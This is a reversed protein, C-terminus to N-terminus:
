ERPIAQGILDGLALELSEAMVVRDGYAVIVRTLQPLQSDSAELYLPQVYLLSHEIPIVLLNGMKVKSGQQNWLSIQQSIIPSQNIRAEIQQPGFILKDRSFEYAVLQGYVHPDCRAGMWAVLNQKNAPTFPSLLVFEVKRDDSGEPLQLVLYNPPMEQELDERQQLAPRWLDEKNYFVQTDTMHYTSYQESQVRFLDEPYRLHARLGAPLNGLPQFLSPFVRVYTQILLDSSDTIYFKTTGNYADIVVKVANRVYNITEGAPSSTSHSLSAPESYPFHDSITYADIIWYLNGQVIVLYPDRDFRLFPAIRQVRDHIQRHLLLRSQPTFDSSLLIRLERFHWAYLLRQWLRGMPVGGRGTYTGYINVNSGPYDLELARTGVFVDTNTLEGYYIAPNSVGLVSQLNPDTTRPPIDKVLLKPLGELAAESVPSLALGYGHTYFFHRNVWTKARRSVLSFDMERAALMVQQLQQDIIYRDKDVSAFHYYPRIEQLQRYAALLPEDDWVRISRVTALNRLVAARTLTGETPFPTLTVPSLNFGQRTFQINANLYPRERDLESPAVVLAQVLPAYLRGASIVLGYTILLGSSVWFRRWPYGQANAPRPMVLAVLLVGTAFGTLTLTTDVPIRAQVDSYRAGLMLDGRTTVLLKYRDLWFGLASLLTLCGILFQSHRWGSTWVGQNLDDSVSRQGFRLIYGLGVTVLLWTVLSLLSRHVKEWFPLAFLYFSLDHGHVPDVVGSPRAWIWTLVVWWEAAVLSSFGLSITLSLAALGWRPGSWVVNLNLYWIPVLVLTVGLGFIWPTLQQIWFVVPYGLETFWAAEIWLSIGMDLASLGIVVALGILFGQRFLRGM